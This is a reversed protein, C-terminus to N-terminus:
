LETGKYFDIHGNITALLADPLDLETLILSTSSASFEKNALV